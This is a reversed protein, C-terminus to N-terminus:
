PSIAPALPSRSDSCRSGTEFASAPRPPVPPLSGHLLSQCFGHAPFPSTFLCRSPRSARGAREGSNAGTPRNTRVKGGLPMGAGGLWRFRGTAAQSGSTRRHDSSRRVAPVLPLVPSSFPAPYLLPAKEGGGCIVGGRLAPRPLPKRPKAGPAM